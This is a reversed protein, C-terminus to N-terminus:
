FRVYVFPLESLIRTVECVYYLCIFLIKAPIYGLLYHIKGLIMTVIGIMMIPGALFGVMLNSIPAILSVEKFYYMMLPTTVAQAAMTTRMDDKISQMIGRLGKQPSSQVQPSWLIIGLSAGFSLQFSITALWEAKFILVVLASILLSFIAISQRHFLLAILTCASMIGARVVPPEPGVFLIFLVVVCISIVAARDKGLFALARMTSVVLFNINSGSLVVLHLLGTKKFYVYLSLTKPVAVGLVMGSVLSTYPEDMYQNFVSTFTHVSPFSM